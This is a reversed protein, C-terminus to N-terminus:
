KEDKLQMLKFKEHRAFYFHSIGKDAHLFRQYLM